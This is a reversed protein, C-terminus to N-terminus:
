PPGPNTRLLIPLFGWPSNTTPPYPGRRGGAESVKWRQKGRIGTSNGVHRCNGAEPSQGERGGSPHPFACIDWLCCSVQAAASCPLVTGWCLM